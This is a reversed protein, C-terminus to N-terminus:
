QRYNGQADFQHCREWGVSQWIADMIPRLLLEPKVDVSRAVVEPLRVIDRDFPYPGGGSQMYNDGVHWLAGRVGLLSVFVAVPPSIELRSLCSLADRSADILVEQLGSGPCGAFGNRMQIFDSTVAEIVGSRFCLTYSRSEGTDRYRHYSVLGDLNFRYDSGSCRMPRPVHDRIRALDVEAKSRMASYPVFHLVMRGSDALVVPTRGLLIAEIRRAVFAEMRDELDGSALFAARIEDVDMPHKGAGTRVYFRSNTRGEQVIMHPAMESRPIRLLVVPGATTALARSDIGIIKSDVNSDLISRLRLVEQELNPAGLGVISAPLGTPQGQGDRKEDIGFIMDGGDANAFATVDRLLESPDTPLDRKYDLTKGEPVENTVLAEVEVGTIRNFAELIM